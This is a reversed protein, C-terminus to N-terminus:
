PLPAFLVLLMMKMQENAYVAHPTKAPMIITEGANLVYEQGDITIRGVGDLLTVFADGNSEHASIEEGKDFAFLTM